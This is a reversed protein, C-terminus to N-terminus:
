FCTGLRTQPVWTGQQGSLNDWAIQVCFVMSLRSPVEELAFVRGGQGFPALLTLLISLITKLNLVSLPLLHHMRLVWERQLFSPHPGGYTCQSGRRSYNSVYHHIGTAVCRRFSAFTLHHM